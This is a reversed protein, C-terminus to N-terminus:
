ICTDVIHEGPNFVVPSIWSHSRTSSISIGRIHYCGPTTTLPSSKSASEGRVNFNADLTEMPIVFFVFVNLTDVFYKVGWSLIGDDV